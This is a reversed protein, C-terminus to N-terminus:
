LNRILKAPNGGILVNEPFNKTVISGAAIVVRNGITVGKLIISNAGIWVDDGINIPSHSIKELNFGPNTRRELYDMPHFDTDYICVNVGINTHKGIYVGESSVITVGSLGTNAGIIIEANENTTALIVPHNIGAINFKSESLLAINEELVIRSKPHKQIIPLGGLFVYGYGTEVGHNILYKYDLSVKESELKEKSYNLKLTGKIINIIKRYMNKTM